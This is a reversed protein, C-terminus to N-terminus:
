DCETLQNQERLELNSTGIKTGNAWCGVGKNMDQFNETGTKYIEQDVDDGVSRKGGTVDLRGLSGRTSSTYCPLEGCQVLVRVLLTM